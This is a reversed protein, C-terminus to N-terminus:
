KIGDIKENREFEQLTDNQFSWQLPRDILTKRKGTPKPNLIERSISCHTKETKKSFIPSPGQGHKCLLLESILNSITHFILEQTLNHTTRQCKKTAKTLRVKLSNIIKAPKIPSDRATL